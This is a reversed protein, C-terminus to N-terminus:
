ADTDAGLQTSAYYHRISHLKIRSVGAEKLLPQFERSIFNRWDLPGGISNVFVLEHEATEKARALADVLISPIIIARKSSRSKPTGFEGLVYNGDIRVHVIGEVLDVATWRLAMLEGARMGTCIATLVLLKTQGRATVIIADIDDGAPIVVEKKEVRPKRVHETPNKHIYDWARAKEFIMRAVTLHYAVTQNCLKQLKAAKYDAIDKADINKIDENDSFYGKLHRAITAYFEFTSRKIDPKVDDLWRDALETFGITKGSYTGRHLSLEREAKLVLAQKKTTGQESSM